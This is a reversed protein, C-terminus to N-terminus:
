NTPSHHLRLGWKTSEEPIRYKRSLTCQYLGFLTILIVKVAKFHIWFEPTAAIRVVENAIGGLLFVIIWRITLIHWGTDHIAFVRSLVRKLLNVRFLLGGALTLGMLFYYLSDAFILADPSHYKLTIGGSVLVFLGSIIPLVPIRHEFHWALSIALVTLFMLVSTAVYFDGVQAVIFFGLIPALENFLYLLAKGNMPSTKYHLV